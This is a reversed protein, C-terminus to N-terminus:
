HKWKAGAIDPGIFGMATLKNLQAPADPVWLDPLLFLVVVFSNLYAPAVEVMKCRIPNAFAMGRLGEWHPPNPKICLAWM